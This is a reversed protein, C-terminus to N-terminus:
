EPAALLHRWVQLLNAVDESRMRSVDFALGARSTRGDDNPTVHALRVPVSHRGSEEDQLWLDM